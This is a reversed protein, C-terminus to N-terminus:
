VRPDASAAGRFANAVLPSSRGILRGLCRRFGSRCVRLHEPAVTPSPGLPGRFFQPIRCLVQLFGFRSVERRFARVPCPGCQPPGRPGGSHDLWLSGRAPEAKSSPEHGGRAPEAESSPERDGRAPEAESSPERGGRAPDAESSAGECARRSGCAPVPM